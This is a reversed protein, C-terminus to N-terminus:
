EAGAGCHFVPGDAERCQRLIGGVASMGHVAPASIYIHPNVGIISNITNIAALGDAGGRKAAEGAPCMSAVNPTLKALVPIHCGRKAAATFQEVFEPTQGIDAGLGSEAM